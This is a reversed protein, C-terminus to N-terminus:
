SWARSVALVSAGSQLGSLARALRRSTPILLAQKCRWTALLDHNHRPTIGTLGSRYDSRTPGGLAGTAPPIAHPRALVRTM